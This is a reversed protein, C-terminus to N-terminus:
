NPLKTYKFSANQKISSVKKCFSNIQIKREDCNQSLNFLNGDVDYLEFHLTYNLESSIYSVFDAYFPISNQWNNNADVGSLTGKIIDFNTENRQLYLLLENFISTGIYLDPYLPKYKENSEIQSITLTNIEDLNYKIFGLERLNDILRIENYEYRFEPM